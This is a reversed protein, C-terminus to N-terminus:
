AGRGKARTEGREQGRRSTGDPKPLSALKAKAPMDPNESWRGAAQSAATFPNGYSEHCLSNPKPNGCSLEKTERTCSNAKKKPSVGSSSLRAPAGHEMSAESELRGSIHRWVDHNDACATRLACM